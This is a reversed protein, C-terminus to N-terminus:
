ENKTRRKKSSKAFAKKLDIVGKEELKKETVELYTPMRKIYVDDVQQATAQLKDLIDSRMSDITKRSVQKGNKFITPKKTAKVKKAM